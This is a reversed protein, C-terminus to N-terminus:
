TQTLAHQVPVDSRHRVIGHWGLHLDVQRGIQRSRALRSGRRPADQRSPPEPRQEVWHQQDHGLEDAVGDPVAPRRDLHAQALGAAAHADVHVVVLWRCGAGTVQAAVGLGPAPQQEHIRDGGLEPDLADVTVALNDPGLHLNLALQVNNRILQLLPRSARADLVHEEVGSGRRGDALSEDVEVAVLLDPEAQQETGDGYQMDDAEAEERM